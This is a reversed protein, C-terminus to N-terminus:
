RQVPGSDLRCLKEPPTGSQRLLSVQHRQRRGRDGEHYETQGNGVRDEQTKGAHKKVVSNASRETTFFLISVLNENERCVVAAKPTAQVVLRAAYGM